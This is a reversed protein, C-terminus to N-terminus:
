GKAKVKKSTARRPQPKTAETSASAQRYATHLTLLPRREADPTREIALKVLKAAAGYATVRALADACVLYAHPLRADLAIAQAGLNYAKRPEDAQLYGSALALLEAYQRLRKGDATGDMEGARQARHLRKRATAAATSSSPVLALFEEYYRIAQGWDEQDEALVALDFRPNPYTPDVRVAELMAERAAAADHDVRYRALGGRLLSSAQERDADSAGHAASATLLVVAALALVGRVLVCTM